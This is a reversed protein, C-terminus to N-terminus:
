SNARDTRREDNARRLAEDTVQQSLDDWRYPKGQYDPRWQPVSYSPSSYTLVSYGAHFLAASCGPDSEVVLSIHHGGNAAMHAQYVRVEEASWTEAITPFYIVRTHEGMGELRLWVDLEEGNEADSLLIIKSRTAMGFYLDLGDQIPQGGVTKRLVGAVTIAVSGM